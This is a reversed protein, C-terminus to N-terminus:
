ASRSQCHCWVPKGAGARKQGRITPSRHWCADRELVEAIKKDFPCSEKCGEAVTRVFLGASTPCGSCTATTAQGM